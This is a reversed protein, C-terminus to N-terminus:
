LHDGLSSCTLMWVLVEAGLFELEYALIKIMFLVKQINEESTEHKNKRFEENIKLRAATHPSLMCGTVKQKNAVM